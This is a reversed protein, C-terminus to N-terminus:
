YYKITVSRRLKDYHTLSYMNLIKSKEANVLENKMTELDTTKKIVKKDRVKFLLIGDPLIVPDSISGVPTNIIQSKLNQSLSNESIWGLDGGKLSTDSISSNIAVADFGEVEIKSLLKSLESDLQEASVPPIIIESILYENVTEDNKILKLQDEIEQQNITLRNKYIEFILSNWLLEIRIQDEVYSWSIENTLLTNKLTELDMNANAALKELNKELDKVSFELNKYKDIEIQKIQRKINQKIAFTELQTKKEDTFTQGNLILIVKIENIIDSKTVAKNGVTAFLTDKIAARGNTFLITLSLIIVFIFNKYNMM